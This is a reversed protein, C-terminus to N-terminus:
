ESQEITIGNSVPKALMVLIEDDTMEKFRNLAVKQMDTLSKDKNPTEEYLGAIKAVERWGAIQATPDAMIKAQDIADMLGTYVKDRTIHLKEANAKRCESIASAIHPKALLKTQDRSDYKYGAHIMAARASLNGIAHAEVFRWEQDTLIIEDRVSVATKKRTM